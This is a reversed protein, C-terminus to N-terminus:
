DVLEAGRDGFDFISDRAHQMELRVDIPVSDADADVLGVAIASRLVDRAAIDALRARLERESTAAADRVDDSDDLRDGILASAAGITLSATWSLGLPLYSPLGLAFERREAKDISEEIKAVELVRTTAGISFAIDDIRRLRSLHDAPLDRFAASVAAPLAAALASAARADSAVRRLLALGTTSDGGWIEALGTFYMQWPACLEGLLARLESRRQRLREVDVRANAFVPRDGPEVFIATALAEIRARAQHPEIRTPDVSEILAARVTTFDAAGFLLGQLRRIDRVDISRNMLADLSVTDHGVARWVDDIPTTARTTSRAWWKPDAIWGDVLAILASQRREPELALPSALIRHLAHNAEIVVGIVADVRTLDDHFTEDTRAGELLHRAQELQRIAEAVASVDIGVYTM